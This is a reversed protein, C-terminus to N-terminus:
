TYLIRVQIQKPSKHSGNVIADAWKVAEQVAHRDCVDAHVFEVRGAIRLEELPELTGAYTLADFVMIRYDSYREAMMRVFNSGIFGAGGTVLISQQTM